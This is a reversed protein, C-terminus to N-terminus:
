TLLRGFKLQLGALMRRVTRESVGMAEAAEDNTRDQLKLDVLRREGDDLEGLVHQFEDAFEVAADPGPDPSAWSSEGEGPEDAPVPRERSASRSQRQHFRAKERLKTLTIACLLNWLRQNDEFLFQGGHARRIFTRFTSQVVDDADFRRQLRPAVRRDAIARLMPGCKACFRQLAAADGQRLGHLITLWESESILHDM